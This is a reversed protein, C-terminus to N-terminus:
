SHRNYNNHEVQRDSGEKAERESEQEDQQRSATPEIVTGMAYSCGSAGEGAKAHTPEDAPNAGPYTYSYAQRYASGYASGVTPASM